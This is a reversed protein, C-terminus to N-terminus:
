PRRTPLTAGTLPFVPLVVRGFTSNTVGAFSTYFAVAATALGFIGGWATIGHGFKDGNLAGGWLLWFTIALLLFVMMVAGNTRLSAVWMYTTFVGWIFLFWITGENGLLPTKAFSDIVFLIGFGMWFGGFSGFATAGFTNRNVFEWMGALFQGLGGYFLAMGVFTLDHVNGVNVASLLTTTLAFGALGLPAPDAVRPTSAPAAPAPEAERLEAAM